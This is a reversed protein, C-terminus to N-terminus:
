EKFTCYPTTSRGEQCAQFEATIGAIETIECGLKASRAAEPRAEAVDNCRGERFEFWSAMLEALTANGDRTLKGVLTEQLDSMKNEWDSKEGVLCAIHTDTGAKHEQCPAFIMGRCEEWSTSEGITALCNLVLEQNTIPQAHTPGAALHIALLTGLTIKASISVMM